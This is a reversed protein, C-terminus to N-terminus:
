YYTIRNYRGLDKMQTLYNPCNKKWFGDVRYHFCKEKPKSDTNKKGEDIGGNPNLIMNVKSPVKNNKESEM